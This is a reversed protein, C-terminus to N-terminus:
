DLRKLIEIINPDSQEAMKMYKDAKNQNGKLEYLHSLVFLARAGEKSKVLKDAKPEIFPILDEENEIFYIRLDVVYGFQPWLEQAETAPILEDLLAVVKPEYEANHTDLYTWLLSTRPYLDNPDITKMREAFYEMPPVAGNGTCNLKNWRTLQDIAYDYVESNENGKGDATNMAVINDIPMINYPNIHYAEKFYAIAHKHNNDRMAQEGLDLMEQWGISDVEAVDFMALEDEQGPVDDQLKFTVPLNYWVNVPKGNSTGPTWGKLLKVVRVAEANLSPDVGQMVEVNYVNGDTGVVFQVLVRGQIGNNMAEEPYRLNQGLFTMLGNIGGPYEPMVDPAELAKAKKGNIVVEEPKDLVIVIETVKQTATQSNGINWSLVSIILLVVSKIYMRFEANRIPLKM